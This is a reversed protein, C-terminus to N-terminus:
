RCVHVVFGKGVTQSAAYAAQAYMRGGYARNGNGPSWPKAISLFTNDDIRELAMLETFPVRGDNGDKSPFMKILPYLWATSNPRFLFFLEVKAQTNSACWIYEYMCDKFSLSASTSHFSATVHHNIRQTSRQGQRPGNSTTPNAAFSGGILQERNRASDWDLTLLANCSIIESLCYYQDVLFSINNRLTQPGLYEYLAM